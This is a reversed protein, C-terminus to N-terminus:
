TRRLAATALTRATSVASAVAEDPTLGALDILTFAAEASIVVALDRKLQSLDGELPALAHDILEFRRGPRQSGSSPRTITAAIMARVAGQYALVERFLVEAAVGVREVPDSSTTAADFAATPDVWLVALVENLLTLLDPFYRYATAESVGAARAVAPMTVEAGSSVLERAAALLNARTRLKQNTRVAM